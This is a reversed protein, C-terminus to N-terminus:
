LRLGKRECQEADAHDWQTSIHLRRRWRACEASSQASLSRESHLRIASVTSSATLQQPLPRHATRTGTSATSISLSASTSKISQWNRRFRRLRTRVRWIHQARATDGSAVKQLEQLLQVNHRLLSYIVRSNTTKIRINCNKESLISTKTSSGIRGIWIWSSSHASFPVNLRFIPTLVKSILPNIEGYM